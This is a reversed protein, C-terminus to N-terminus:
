LGCSPRPTRTPGNPRLAVGFTADMTPVPRRRRPFCGVRIKQVMHDTASTVFLYRARPDLTMGQPQNGVAIATRLGRRARDLVGISGPQSCTTDGTVCVVEVYIENGSPHIILRGVTDGVPIMEVVSRTLTDLEVVFGARAMFARVGEPSVAVSGVAFPLMITDIVTDTTTDITTLAGKPASPVTPDNTTVYARKGTANFTVAYARPVPISGVEISTEVDIVAVRNDGWVPIYAKTGTRHIAIDGPYLGLPARSLVTLENADLVVLDGQGGNDPRRDVVYLREGTPTYEASWPEVGIPFTGRTTNGRILSGSGGLTGGAAHTVFLQQASAIGSCAVASFFFIGFCTGHKSRKM